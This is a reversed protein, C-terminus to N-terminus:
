TYFGEPPREDEVIGVKSDRMHQIANVIMEETIISDHIVLDSLVTETFKSKGYEIKILFSLTETAGGDTILDANDKIIKELDIGASLQWYNKALQLTLIEALGKASYKKIEFFWTCRRKLGPQVKFITELLKDKYGAFIVIIEEPHLSMFENIVNLCEEGFKDKSGGEPNCISYAEDIFLVGGLASELIKKTKPSTQGLYEGVLDVRAATVFIPKINEDNQVPIASPIVALPPTIPKILDFTLSATSSNLSAPQNIEYIIEDFGHKLQTVSTLFMSWTYRLEEETLGRANVNKLELAKRHIESVISHNHASLEKVKDIKKREHRRGDDVKSTHERYADTFINVLANTFVVPVDNGGTSGTLGSTDSNTGTAGIPNFNCSASKIITGTTSSTRIVSNTTKAKESTEGDKRKILGLGAWIKALIAAVTTKGSGPPGSIVSHVMHGEFNSGNSSVSAKRAHNTILFKIQDVISLKIDYMEVMNNLESLGTILTNANKITSILQDKRSVLVRIHTILETIERSAKMDPTQVIKTGLTKIDAAM